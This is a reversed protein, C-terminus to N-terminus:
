DYTGALFWRGSFVERFIRYLVRTNDDEVSVDWQEYNWPNKTWWGGSIKWPGSIYKVTAIRGRFVLRQPRGGELSVAIATVPRCVRFGMVPSSACCQAISPVPVKFKELRFADPHHSDLIVPTGVRTDEDAQVLKAIRALLVDLKEAQPFATVFFGNQMPRPRAPEARVTISKVPANPPHASLDLEALKLFVRRDLMPVSLRLTRELLEYRPGRQEDKRIDSDATIELKLTLTLENIALARAAIRACLQEFLRSLIFSLPELLEVADEFEFSEEFLMKESTPILPRDEEGRALKQLQLGYQGLRQSLPIPPLDALARLTKIGWSHLIELVEPQPSLVEVPLVGLQATATQQELVSIGAIGKAAVCAAEVNPAVAIHPALGVTVIREWLERAIQFPEGFLRDLGAIDLVVHNAASAEVRPSLSVACDLLAARAHDEQEPSRIRTVADASVEAQAKTMGVYYGKARAVENIAMVLTLPPKGELILVPLHQISKPESRLVAQVPLDPIYACAFM